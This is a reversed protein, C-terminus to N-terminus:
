LRYAAHVPGLQRTPVAVVWKAPARDDAVCDLHHRKILRVTRALVCFIGNGAM